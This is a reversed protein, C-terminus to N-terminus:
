QQSFRGDQRAQAMQVPEEANDEESLALRPTRWLQETRPLGGFATLIIFDLRLGLATRGTHRSESEMPM